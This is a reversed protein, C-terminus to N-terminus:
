PSARRSRPKRRGRRRATQAAPTGDAKAASSGASGKDKKGAPRAKTAKTAKTTKPELEGNPKREPAGYSLAFTRYRILLIQIKDSAEVRCPQCLTVCDEGLRKGSYAGQTELTAVVPSFEMWKVGLDVATTGDIKVGCNDCALM